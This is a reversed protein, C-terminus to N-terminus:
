SNGTKWPCRLSIRLHRRFDQNYQSILLQEVKAISTRNCQITQHCARETGDHRGLPGNVIWGLRTRVAFPGDGKSNVVELPEMVKPADTGILLEVEANIVPIHMNNLYSWKSLDEKRIINDKTVCKRKHTYKLCLLSIQNM